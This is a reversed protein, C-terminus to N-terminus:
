KKRALLFRALVEAYHEEISVRHYDVASDRVIKKLDALYTQVAKRYEKAITTPDVLMAPAGELDVFKVPRDFEFDIEQQELLHFVAVDHKRFRLHQFCTRLEEPDIFMDSIIVVLARQSIKEAAEHLAVPLGTEGEAKM